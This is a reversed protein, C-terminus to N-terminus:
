FSMPATYYALGACIAGILFGLLIKRQKIKILYSSIVIMVFLLFSFITYNLHNYFIGTLVWLVFANSIRMDAGIKLKKVLLFIALLGVAAILLQRIFLPYPGIFARVIVIAYFPVSGLARFDCSVEKINM